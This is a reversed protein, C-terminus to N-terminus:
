STAAVECGNSFHVLLDYGSAAAQTGYFFELSVAGRLQRDEPQGFWTTMITPPVLDEGSWIVKGDLFANFIADNSQPWSTEIRAIEMPQSGRNELRWRSVTSTTSIFRLDLLSCLAPPPTTTVTASPPVATPSSTPPPSTATIGTAPSASDLPVSEQQTPLQPGLPIGRTATQTAEPSSSPEPLTPTTGSRGVLLYVLAAGFLMLLLVALLILLTFRRTTM